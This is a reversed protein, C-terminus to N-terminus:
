IGAHKKSRSLFEIKVIKSRPLTLAFERVREPCLDLENCLYEFSNFRDGPWNFLWDYAEDGQAKLKPDKSNKYLVYDYAARLIVRFWLLREPEFEILYTNKPGEQNYQSILTELNQV